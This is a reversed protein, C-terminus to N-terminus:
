GGQNEGAVPSKRNCVCVSVCWVGNVDRVDVDAAHCFHQQKKERSINHNSNKIM